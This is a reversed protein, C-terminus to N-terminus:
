ARLRDARWHKVAKKIDGPATLRGALVERVLAAVEDDGAFRLATVQGVTLQDFRAALDPALAQIRLREELRILRDQVALPFARTFWFLLALATAGIADYLREPSFPVLGRLAHVLNALVLLGLVFHFLPVYRAHNKLNQTTESAM